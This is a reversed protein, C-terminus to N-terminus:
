PKFEEPTGEGAIFAAPDQELRNSLRSLDRLLTRLETIAPGVQVLGQQSFSAIADRNEAVIADVNRSISDLRTSTRNLKNALDPLDNLVNEEVNAMGRDFRQMGSEAAQLTGELRKAANSADRILSALDDKQAAVSGTIQELNELTNALRSANQDNLIVNLRILAESATTVIDESSALLKGLASSSATIRPTGDRTVDKLLASQASGGELQIQAVGTLGVFALKAGTDVKVPTGSDVRIQAIVRAPDEPDLWLKRVEGIGIGNYQVISGRSLGVVAESFVVEYEDWQRDANYKVIWLAFLVAMLFTILTFAGVLVHNARTEM